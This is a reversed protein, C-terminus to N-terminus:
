CLALSNHATARPPYAASTLPRCRAAQRKGQKDSFSRPPRRRRLRRRWRPKHPPPAPPSSSEGQAPPGTVVHAMLRQRIREYQGQVSADLWEDIDEEEDDDDELDFQLGDMGQLASAAAQPSSSRKKSTSNPQTSKKRQQAPAGSPGKRQRRCPAGRAKWDM